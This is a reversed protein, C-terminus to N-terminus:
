LAPHPPSVAVSTPDLGCLGPGEAEQWTKLPVKTVSVLPTPEPALASAGSPLPIGSYWVYPAVLGNPLPSHVTFRKQSYKGM